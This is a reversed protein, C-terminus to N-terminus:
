VYKISWSKCGEATACKYDPHDVNFVVVEWRGRRINKLEFYAIGFPDTEGKLSFKTGDPSDIVLEVGTEFVPYGALDSVSVALKLHQQKDKYSTVVDLADVFMKKSNSGPALESKLYSEEYM